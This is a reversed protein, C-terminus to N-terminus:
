QLPSLAQQREVLSRWCRALRERELRQQDELHDREPQDSHRRPPPWKVAVPPEATAQGDPEPPRRLEALVSRPSIDPVAPAFDIRRRGSPEGAMPHYGLEAFTRAPIVWVAGDDTALQHAGPFGGLAVRRQLLRPPFGYREAAQEVTLLDESRGIEAM